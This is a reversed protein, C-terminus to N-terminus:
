LFEWFVLNRRVEPLTSNIPKDSDVAQSTNVSINFANLSHSVAPRQNEKQKAETFYHMKIQLLICFLEINRKSSKHWSYICITWKFHQLIYALKVNWENGGEKNGLEYFFKRMSMGFIAYKELLFLYQIVWNRANRRSSNSTALTRHRSDNWSRRVRPRAARRRPRFGATWKQYFAVSKQLNLKNEPSKFSLYKRM